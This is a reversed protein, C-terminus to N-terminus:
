PEQAEAPSYGREISNIALPAILTLGSIVATAGRSSPGVQNLRSWERSGPKVFATRVGPPVFHTICVEIELSVGRNNCTRASAKALMKRAGEGFGTGIQNQGAAAAFAEQWKLLFDLGEPSHGNRNLQVYPIWLADLSHYFRRFSCEAM